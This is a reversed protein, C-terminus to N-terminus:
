LARVRGPCCDGTTDTRGSKGALHPINSNRVAAGTPETITAASVNRNRDSVSKAFSWSMCRPM